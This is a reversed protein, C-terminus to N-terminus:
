STSWLFSMNKCFHSLLKSFYGLFLGSSSLIVFEEPFVRPNPTWFRIFVTLFSGNKVRKKSYFRAFGSFDSNKASVFVVSYWPCVPKKMFKQGM